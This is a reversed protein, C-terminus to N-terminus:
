PLSAPAAGATPLVAKGHQVNQNETLVWVGVIKQAGDVTGWEFWQLVEGSFLSPGETPSRKVQYSLLRLRGARDFSLDQLHRVMASTDDSREDGDLSGFSCVFLTAASPVSAGDAYWLSARLTEDCDRKDDYIRTPAGEVIGQNTLLHPDGVCPLFAYDAHEGCVRAFGEPVALPKGSPSLAVEHAKGPPRAERVQDFAAREAEPIVARLLGERSTPADGRLPSAALRTAAGLDTWEYAALLPSGGLALADTQSQKWAALQAQNAQAAVPDDPSSATAFVEIESLCLDKYKAGEYVETVTFKIEEVRKATIPITLDQWGLKDELAITVTENGPLLTIVLSKARANAAFIEPTKQYGNMVRLRLATVGEAPNVKASLWEGAGSSAAGENWASLPDGDFAYNPHYRDHIARESHLFSSASTGSAFLRREVGSVAPPTATHTPTSTAAKEQVPAAAPRPAQSPEQAQCAAVVGLVGFLSWSRSQTPM